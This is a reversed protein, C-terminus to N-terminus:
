KIPQTRSAGWCWAIKTLFIAPLTYWYRAFTAPQRAVIRGTTWAALLPSLWWILRPYLFLGPAQLMDQHHLRLWRMHYGSHACDQWVLKMKDRNHQHYVAAEPWFYPQIGARRMRTTWDIDEVRDIAEDMGGVQEIVRRGVSLNLTPLYARPGAEAISLVGHFLTLNYVFHWYNHGAAVVGGGVVSHGAEHAAIHQALWGPQPLCDSDLFIVIEAQTAAIGLNRAKSARIPQGTDILQIQDTPTILGPEDRGVVVIQEVKAIQAQEVIAALVKDIIPSNLSPIIIAAKSM